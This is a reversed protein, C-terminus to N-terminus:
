LIPVTLNARRIELSGAIAFTSGASFRVGQMKLHGNSNGACPTWGRDDTQNIDAGADLQRTVEALDGSSAADLLTAASLEGRFLAFLFVLLWGPLSRM